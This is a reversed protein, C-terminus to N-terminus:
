WMKAREVPILLKNLDQIASANICINEALVEDLLGLQLLLHQDALFVIDDISEVGLSLLGNRIPPDLLLIDIGHPTSPNFPIDAQNLRITGTPLYEIIPQSREM